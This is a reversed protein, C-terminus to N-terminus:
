YKPVLFALWGEKITLWILFTIVATIAAAILAKRTMNVKEPAGRETGPIVVGAEHQSRTGWSLIPIFVLFYTCGYTLIAEFIGM